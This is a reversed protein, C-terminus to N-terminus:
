PASDPEARPAPIELLEIPLGEPAMEPPVVLDEPLEVLGGQDDVWEYDPHFMLIPALEEGDDTAQHHRVYGEPLPFDEPVVIGRKPPDTGPPPFLAIGSPESGPPDVTFTPEPEPEAPPAEPSAEVPEPPAPEPHRRMPKGPIPEIPAVAQSGPQVADPDPAAAVVAVPARSEEVSQVGLRVIAFLSLTLAVLAASLLWIRNRVGFTELVKVGDADTRERSRPSKRRATNAGHSRQRQDHPQKAM